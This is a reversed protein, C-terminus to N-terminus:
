GAQLPRGSGVILIDGNGAPNGSTDAIAGASSVVSYSTLYALSEPPKFTVSNGSVSLLPNGAAPGAYFTGGSTKLTITGTGLQVPENFVFVLDAEVPHGRVPSSALWPGEGDALDSAAGSM